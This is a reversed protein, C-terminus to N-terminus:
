GAGAAVPYFWMVTPHGLVDEPGLGTGDQSTASFAPLAIPDAPVEGYYGDEATDGATDDGSSTDDGGATDDPRDDGSDLPGAGDDGKPDGCALLLLMLMSPTYGGPRAAAARM